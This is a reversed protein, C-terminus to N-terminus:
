KPAPLPPSVLYVAQYIRPLILAVLHLDPDSTFPCLMGNPVSPDSTWIWDDRGFLFLLNDEGRMESKGGKQYMLHHVLVPFWAHYEGKLWCNLGEVIEWWVWCLCVLDIAGPNWDEPWLLINDASGCDIKLICVLLLWWWDFPACDRYLDIVAMLVM